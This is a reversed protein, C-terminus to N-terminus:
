RNLARRALIGRIAPASLEPKYVFGAAPSAAILEAFDAEAYTSVLIVAPREGRCDAVLRQALDFGSEAGLGIDVLVVDPRLEEERRLAEATTSAVGVVELGERELLTGAMQLFTPSDDVILVRQAVLEADDALRQSAIGSAPIGYPSCARV